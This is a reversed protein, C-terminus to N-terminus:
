GLKALWVGVLALLQIGCGQVLHLSVSSFLALAPSLPSCLLASCHGAMTLSFESSLFSVILCCNMILNTQSM